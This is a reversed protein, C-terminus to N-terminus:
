ALSLFLKQFKETMPGNDISPDVLYEKLSASILNFAATDVAKSVAAMQTVIQECSCGEDMMRVVAGLQGHARRLRKGIAALQENDNLTHPTTSAIPNQRATRTRGFNDREARTISM